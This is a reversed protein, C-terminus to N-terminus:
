DNDGDSLWLDEEELDEQEHTNDDSNYSWLLIDKDASGTILQGCGYTERWIISSVQGFHANDFTKVMNGTILDLAVVSYGDSPVFLRSSLGNDSICLRLNRSARNKLNNGYNVNMLKGTSVDWLNIVGDKGCSVLHVGDPSFQLGNVAGYHSRCSPKSPRPIDSDSAEDEPFSLLQQQDLKRTSAYFNSVNDLVKLCQSPGPKRIDWLRITEDASGSALLFFDTPHWSVSMCSNRHGYLRHTISGSRLDCLVIDPCDSATAILSHSTACPSLSHTYVKHELNFTHVDQLSETDWVKVTKDYSSTTFMGLDFPYWNITSILRRHGESPRLTHLPDIVGNDSLNLNYVNITGEKGASLLYKETIHELSLDEVGGSHCQRIHPNRLVGFNELLSDKYVLDPRDQEYGCTLESERLKKLLPIM